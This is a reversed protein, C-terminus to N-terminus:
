DKIVSEVITNYFLRGVSSYFIYDSDRVSSCCCLVVQDVLPEKETCFHPLVLWGGPVLHTAPATFYEAAWHSCSLHPRAGDKLNSPLSRTRNQLWCLNFPMTCVGFFFHSCELHRLAGLKLEAPWFSPLNQLLCLSSPIFFTTTPPAGFFPFLLVFACCGVLSSIARGPFLAAVSSPTLLAAVSAALSLAATLAAASEASIFELPDGTLM